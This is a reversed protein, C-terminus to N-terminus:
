EIVNLTQTLLEGTQADVYFTWLDEWGLEGGDIQWALKLYLKNKEENEQPLIVLRKVKLSIEERKFEEQLKVKYVSEMAEEKSIKPNVSIEIDPYFTLGRLMIKLNFKGTLADEEYRLIARNKFFERGDENENFGGDSPIDVYVYIGKYEQSPEIFLDAIVDSYTWGDPNDILKISELGFFDKNEELFQETQKIAEEKSPLSDYQKFVDTIAKNILGTYPNIIIKWSEGNKEKFKKEIKNIEDESKRLILFSETSSVDSSQNASYWLIIGSTIFILVITILIIKKSM